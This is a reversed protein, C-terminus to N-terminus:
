RLVGMVWYRFRAASAALGKAGGPPETSSVRADKAAEGWSDQEREMLFRGALASL